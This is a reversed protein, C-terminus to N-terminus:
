EVIELFSALVECQWTQQHEYKCASRREFFLTVSSSASAPGRLNVLPVSARWVCIRPPGRNRPRASERGFYQSSKWTNRRSRDGNSEKARRQEGKNETARRQEGESWKARRKQGKSEKARRQEGKHENTKSAKPEGRGEKTRRREGKREKARRQEKASRQKTKNEKKNSRESM